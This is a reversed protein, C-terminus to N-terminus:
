KIKGGGIWVLVEGQGGVTRDGIYRQVRRRAIHLQRFKSEYSLIERLLITLYGLNHRGNDAFTPLMTEPKHPFLLTGRKMNQGAFKGVAGQAAITGAIMRSACYNGIDGEVLIMGRRMLDGAFDGTDGRVLITGGSMGRKEGSEASGLYDGCNGNIEFLGANMGCASYDSTNGNAIVKGGSLNAATYFGSDGEIELQYEHGLGYGLYDLTATSNKVVIEKADRPGDISFLDGAAAGPADLPVEAKSLDVINPDLLAQSLWRMDMRFPTNDKYTLVLKSM